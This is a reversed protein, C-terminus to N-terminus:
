IALKTDAWYDSLQIRSLVTFAEDRAIHPSVELLNKEQINAESKNYFQVSKRLSHDIPVADIIGMKLGLKEIKAPWVFDLGWGMPSTEDFPVADKFFDARVSFVPGIEVFRTQRALLTCDQRVIEHDIWSTYTRSPQCLAFDCFQQAMIFKDIFRYPLVVDDDLVILYNFEPMDVGALLQNILTFKPTRSKTIIKTVQAVRENPPEGNLAAWRQTVKHFKSCALESVIHKIYNPRNALYVGVVMIHVSETTAPTKIYTRPRLKRILLRRTRDYLNKIMPRLLASYIYM